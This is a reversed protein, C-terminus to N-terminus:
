GSAGQIGDQHGRAAVRDVADHDRDPHQHHHDLARGGTRGHQLRHLPGRRVDCQRGSRLLVATARLQAGSEGARACDCLARPDRRRRPRHRKGDGRRDPDARECEQEQGHGGTWRLQGAGGPQRVLSVPVSARGGSGPGGALRGRGGRRLHHDQRSGAFRAATGCLNDAPGNRHGVRRHQEPLRPGDLGHAAHDRHCGDRFRWQRVTGSPRFRQRCASRPRVRGDNCAQCVPRAISQPEHRDSLLFNAPLAISVRGGKPTAVGSPTVVTRISTPGDVAISQAGNFYSEVSGCEPKVATQTPHRSM